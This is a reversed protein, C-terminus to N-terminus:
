LSIQRIAEYLVIAVCNSLNLSRVKGSTPIELINDRYRELIYSPVGSTEKGFMIYCDKNYSVETYLKSGGTEIVFIQPNKNIQLFHEFDDYYHIDLHHWYDLGARKLSKEDTHFGLPRILHLTTNTAVCTRAINGTNSPIQPEHLIINM